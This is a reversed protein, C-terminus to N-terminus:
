DERAMAAELVPDRGRRLDEGSPWVVRDPVFFPRRDAVSRGDVRLEWSVSGQLGSYHLRFPRESGWGVPRCGSPWGVFLPQFHKELMGLVYGSASFTRPGLLVRLAGAEQLEPARLLEAIFGEAHYANGGNNWRLDLILVEGEKQQFFERLRRGYQALSSSPSDLTQNMQGYVIGPALARFHFPEAVREIWLPSDECLSVWGQPIWRAEPNRQVPGPDLAREVLRGDPLALQLTVPGVDASGAHYAYIEAFQLAVGALWRATIGNDRGILESAFQVLEDWPRGDAQLIRAGVLDSLGRPAGVVYWGDSARFPVFPLLHWAGEGEIPPLIASHGDGLKAMLRMLEITLQLDSSSDITQELRNLDENWEEEDAVTFANPHALRCLREFYRLDARWCAERTSTESSPIRGALEWLRPHEHLAQFGPDQLLDEVEEFGWPGWAKEIHQLADDLDGTAVLSRALALHGRRMGNRDGNVGLALSEVIAAVAEADRGLSQLCIGLYYHAQGDFPNSSVVQELICAAADWRHARLDDLADETCLLRDGLGLCPVVMALTLFFSM